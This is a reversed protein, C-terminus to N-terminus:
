KSFEVDVYVTYLADLDGVFGPSCPCMSCGCDQRWGWKVNQLREFVSPHNKRIDDLILPLIEKKYFEFPRNRRSFLGEIVSEGEAFIYIKPKTKRSEGSRKEASRVDVKKIKFKM